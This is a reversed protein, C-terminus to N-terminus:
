DKEIWQSVWQSVVQNGAVSLHIHDHYLAKAPGPESNFISLFDIYSINEARTFDLLQQRAVLEYDKPGPEGLERLLPTMILLFRANTQQAIQHIERIAKLNVGVRDGGEAQIVKLAAPLEPAPLVYRNFVETLALLPKRDPYNRDRGVFLPSPTTGFLDDTNIVLVVIQSEFLGFQKIYALENRPSWSNASANLVEVKEGTQVQRAVVESLINPQDTWWGGNVISDGIMLVRLTGPARQPLIQVGRMSYGNILIRNGFRRTQQNPALLYGINPDAVYILPNGFGYRLRLGVEVVVLAVFLGIGTLLVWNM